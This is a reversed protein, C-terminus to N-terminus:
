FGFMFMATGLALAVVNAVRENSANMGIVKRARGRAVTALVLVTYGCRVRSTQFQRRETRPAPRRSGFSRGLAASSGRM